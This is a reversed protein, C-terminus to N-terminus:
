VLEEERQRRPGPLVRLAEALRARYVAEFAASERPGKGQVADGPGGPRDDPPLSPDPGQSPPFLPDPAAVAPPDAAELEMPEGAEPVGAPQLATGAAKSAVIAKSMANIDTWLVMNQRDVLVPDDGGAVPPEGIEDRVRNLTYSGNKLRTDRIQEVVQSDRYDIEGFQLKWDTIKFGVMLLHYNIKELVLSQVPIVMNVRFGKDQSEGTGGGINGAEIIGVKAPPVGIGSVIEDRLQRSAALYDTVKRPDLVNVTGGNLTVVPNGVAKPGLNWVQYQERWRQAETDSKSGLDVHLRPPDGRRFCEKITAECFLWATVPLLVKQVPSVGYVGGRPADLSVHIVQEPEFSAQMGNETQQVYGTVRGHPDTVVTMTTADLTYLAVPEGALLVVEIFCDGFLKLDTVSQRLLQVMDETANVFKMLRRLRQVEPPDDPTEGDFGAPPDFVVQLGGATVTRAVLDIPASIWPCTLYAQHLQNLIQLREASQALQASQSSQVLAAGYEYGTRQVDAGPASTMDIGAAKARAEVAAARSEAAVARSELARRSRFLAPFAL